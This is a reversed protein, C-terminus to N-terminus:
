EIAWFKAKVGSIIKAHHKICLFLIAGLLGVLVLGLIGEMTGYNTIFKKKTFKLDFGKCFCQKRYHHGRKVYSFTEIQYTEELIDVENRLMLGRDIENTTEGMFIWFAHKFGGAYNICLELVFYQDMKYSIIRYELDDLDFKLMKGDTTYTFSHKMIGCSLTISQFSAQLVIDVCTRFEQNDSFVLFVGEKINDSADNYAGLFYQGVIYFTENTDGLKEPCQNPMSACFTWLFICIVLIEVKAM